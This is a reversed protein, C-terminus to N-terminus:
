SGGGGTGAKSAIFEFKARKEPNGPLESRKKPVFDALGPDALPPPHQEGLGVPAVAASRFSSQAPSAQSGTVSSYLSNGYARAYQWTSVAAGRKNAERLFDVDGAECATELATSGGAIATSAVDVDVVKETWLSSPSESAHSSRSGGSARSAGGVHEGGLLRQSEGLVPAPPRRRECLGRELFSAAGDYGCDHGRHGPAKGAGQGIWPRALAAAVPLCVLGVLIQLFVLRALAELPEGCFGEHVARTYHEYMRSEGLLEMDREMASQLTAATGGIRMDLIDPCYLGLSGLLRNGDVLAEHVTRSRIRAEALDVLVPNSGSGFIYFNALNMILVERGSEEAAFSALHVLSLDVDSCFAGAAGGLGLLAAGSLAAVLVVLASFMSALRGIGINEVSEAVSGGLSQASLVAFMAVLSVASLKVPTLVCYRLVGTWPMIRSSATSLLDSLVSVGPRIRSLLSRFGLLEGVVTAELKHTSDVAEDGLSRRVLERLGHCVSLLGSVEDQLQIATRNASILDDQVANVNTAVGRLASVGVAYGKLLQHFSLLALFWVVVLALLGLALNQTSSALKPAPAPRCLNLATFVAAVVGVVVVTAPAAGSALAYSYWASSDSPLEVIASAGIRGVFSGLLQSAVGPEYLPRASDSM